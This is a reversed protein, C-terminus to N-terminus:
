PRAPTGSPKVPAAQGLAAWLIGGLILVGGAGERLSPFEGLFAAALLSAGLPEGLMVVAVFSAPLRRLAWNFSSHGLLQPVLALLILWLYVRPPHGALSHGAGVMLGLLVLAAAGYVVFLYPALPLAGRLRRGLLLYLAATLAGALALADGRLTSATRGGETWALICAGALALAMGAWVGKRPREQAMWPSLLAVWLPTTTVIVVSRAVTTYELSQIWTAFHLALCGGSFLALGWAGVSLAVLDARHRWLVWPALVMSAIVLRGAAIVLSAADAQAYRIFLAATSVALIGLPLVMVPSSPRHDRHPPM